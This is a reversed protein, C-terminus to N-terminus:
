KSPTTYIMRCHTAGAITHLDPKARSLATVTPPGSWNGIDIRQCDQDTPQLDWPCTRGTLGGLDDHFRVCVPAVAYGVCARARVRRQM